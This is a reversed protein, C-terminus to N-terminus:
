EDNSKYTKSIETKTYGEFLQAFLEVIDRNEYSVRYFKM